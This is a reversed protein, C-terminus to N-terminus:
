TRIAVQHLTPLDLMSTLYWIVQKTQRSVACLIGRRDLAFLTRSGPSWVLAQPDVVDASIPVVHLAGTTLNLLAISAPKTAADLLAATRGDPSILGPAQTPADVGPLTRRAGTTRNVVIAQCRHFGCRELLWRTAGIAVLRDRRTVVTTGGPGVDLTRESGAPGPFTEFGPFVLNGRGDPLASLISHGRPVQVAIGTRTGDARTLLVARSSSKCSALWMTGPRPGPLAPGGCQLNRGPMRAPRGDPILYAPVYDYPRVFAGWSGVVFSVAGTSELAPVATTTIRGRALQVRVISRDSRGFLQWHGSGGLLHRLEQRVFPPATTSSIRTLVTSPAHVIPAVPRHRAPVGHRHTNIVLPAAVAAAVVVIGAVRWRWSLRPLRFRRDPNPGLQLEEEAPDDVAV